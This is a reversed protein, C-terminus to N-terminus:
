QRRSWPDARLYDGAYPFAMLRDDRPKVKALLAGCTGLKCITKPESSYLRRVRSCYTTLRANPSRDIFNIFRARPAPQMMSVKTINSTPM